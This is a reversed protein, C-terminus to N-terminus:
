RILIAFYHLQASSSFAELRRAHAADDMHAPLVMRNDIQPAVTDCSRRACFRVYILSYLAGHLANQRRTSRMSSVSEHACARPLAVCRVAMVRQIVAGQHFDDVPSTSHIAEIFSDHLKKSRNSILARAHPIATTSAWRILWLRSVRASPHFHV